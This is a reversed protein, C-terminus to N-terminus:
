ARKKIEVSEVSPLLDIKQWEDRADVHAYRQASRMDKWNGTAVLGQLDMGGYRRAWSAFTHRWTHFGVWSYKHPPAAKNRVPPSLGCAKLKARLLLAYAHGGKRFRFVFQQDDRRSHSAIQASLDSRLRVTRPQGNKSTRIYALSQAIDIEDWRLKLAEGVRCGTYLLFRLLLALDADITEAARIIASADDPNLFETVTRGQWGKPRRITIDLGASHLIASCPTYVYATRTVPTSAPYLELACQDIASQNIQSLPTDGFYKILNSVYRAPRGSQVYRTAAVIFTDGEPIATQRYEGREIDREIEKRKAVAISRKPSGSSRDVHIGLYTGRISYNPSKRPEKIELPM